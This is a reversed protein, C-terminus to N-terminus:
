EFALSFTLSGFRHAERQGEFERSDQALGLTVVGRDDCWALGAAVRSVRNERRAEPLPDDDRRDLLRNRAVARLSAGAFASLGRRGAQLPPTPAFRLLPSAATGPGDTRWEIGAHFFTTVTGVVAGGHVVLAGPIEGPGLRKSWAGVVQIDARDGSQTTWDTSPAPVFRHVFDQTPEGRASPGAVGAELAATVFDDASVDHRALSLLLRAANPRDPVGGPARGDGTYVEHVLGADWRQERTAALRLFSAFASSEDLTQSRSIRVGSTYWRDTNFAVDNDIQAHWLVPPAGM